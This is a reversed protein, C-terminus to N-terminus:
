IQFGTCFVGNTKGAVIREQWSGVAEYYLAESTCSCNERGETEAGATDAWPDYEDLAADVATQVLADVIGRIEEKVTEYKAPVLTPVGHMRVSGQMDVCRGSQVVRRVYGDEIKSFDVCKGSEDYGKDRLEEVFAQRLRRLAWHRVCSSKSVDVGTTTHWLLGEKKRQKLLRRQTIHLPHTPNAAIYNPAFSTHTPSYSLKFLTPKLRALRNLPKM